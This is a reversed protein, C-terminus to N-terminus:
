VRGREELQQEAELTYTAWPIAKLREPDIQEGTMDCIGYTGAEVKELAREVRALTKNVLDREALVKSGAEAEDGEDEPANDSSRFADQRPDRESLDALQAQLEQRKEELIHKVHELNHM